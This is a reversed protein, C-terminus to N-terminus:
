SFYSLSLISIFLFMLMFYSYYYVRGVQIKKIEFALRFSIFSLGLPGFIELIGKDQPSFIVNYAFKLLIRNILENYVADFYWKFTLFRYGQRLFDKKNNKVRVTKQLQSSFFRYYTPISKLTTQFIIAPDDVESTTKIYM